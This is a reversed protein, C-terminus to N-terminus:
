QFVQKVRLYDNGHWKPCLMMYGCDVRLDAARDSDPLIGHFSLVTEIADKRSSFERVYRPPENLLGAEAIWKEVGGVLSLDLHGAIEVWPGDDEARRITEVQKVELKLGFRLLSSNVENLNRVSRYRQM